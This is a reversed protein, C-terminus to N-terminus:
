FPEWHLSSIKLTNTDIGTSVFMYKTCDKEFIEACYTRPVHITLLVTNELDKIEISKEDFQRYM